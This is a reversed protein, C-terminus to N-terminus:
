ESPGSGTRAYFWLGDSLKKTGYGELGLKFARIDMADFPGGFDIIIHDSGRIYVGSPNLSRVYAPLRSDDKNFDVDKWEHRDALDRLEQALARHDVERLLFRQKQNIAHQLAIMSALPSNGSFFIFWLLGGITILALILLLDVVYSLRWRKLLRM